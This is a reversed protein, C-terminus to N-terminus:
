FPMPELDAANLSNLTDLYNRRNKDDEFYLAETEIIHKSEM